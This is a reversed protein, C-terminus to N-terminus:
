YNPYEKFYGNLLSDGWEESGYVTDCPPFHTTVFIPKTNSDNLAKKIEKEFWENNTIPKYLSGNECSWNIFHYGNIKIHFLNKKQKKKM